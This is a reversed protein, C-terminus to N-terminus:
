WSGSAGGGGFSGGGGSFGGGFGGGYGGGFGGTYPGRGRSRYGPGADFFFSALFAGLAAAGLRWLWDPLLLWGVLGALVAGYLARRWRRGKRAFPLAFSGGMFGAFFLKPLVGVSDGASVGRRRRPREPLTEGRAVRLIAELGALVGDDM